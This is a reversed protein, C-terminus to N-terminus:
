YAAFGSCFDRIKDDVEMRNSLFIYLAFLSGILSHYSQVAVIVRENSKDATGFDRKVLGSRLTESALRDYCYSIYGAMTQQRTRKVTESMRKVEKNIDFRRAFGAFYTEVIRLDYSVYNKLTTEMCDKEDDEPADGEAEKLDSAIYAASLLKSYAQIDLDVEIKGLGDEQANSFRKIADGYRIRIIGLFMFPLILELDHDDADESCDVDGLYDYNVLIRGNGRDEKVLIDYNASPEKETDPMQDIKMIPMPEGAISELFKSANGAAAGLRIDLQRIKGKDM